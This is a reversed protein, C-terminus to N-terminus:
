AKKKELTHVFLSGLNCCTAAASVIPLYNCVHESGAQSAAATVHSPIAPNIKPKNLGEYLLLANLTTMLMWYLDADNVRPQRSTLSLPQKDLIWLINSNTSLPWVPASVTSSWNTKEEWALGKKKIELNILILRRWLHPINPNFLDNLREKWLAKKDDLPINAWSLTSYYCSAFRWM